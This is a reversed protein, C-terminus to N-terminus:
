RNSIYPNGSGTSELEVTGKYTFYNKIGLNKLRKKLTKDCGEDDSTSSVTCLPAAEDLLKGLSDNYECSHHPLKILTMKSIEHTDLYYSVRKELADGTFLYTESGYRLTLMLSNENDDEPDIGAAPQIELSGKGFERTESTTIRKLASNAAACKRVEKFLDTDDDYIPGVVEAVYYTTLIECASGIHDRDYHTLVLLDIRGIGLANLESEITLTSNPLGADILVVAGDIVVLIADAKGVNLFRIYLRGNELNMESNDFAHVLGNEKPREDQGVRSCSGLIMTALLVLAIIALISKKM